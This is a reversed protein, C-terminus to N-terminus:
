GDTLHGEGAGQGCREEEAGGQVQQWRLGGEALVEESALCLRVVAKRLCHHSHQWQGGVVMATLQRGAAVKGQQVEGAVLLAAASGAVVQGGLSDPYYHGVAGEEEPVPAKEPPSHCGVARCHKEDEEGARGQGAAATRAAAM